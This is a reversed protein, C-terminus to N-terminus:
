RRKLDVLLADIFELEHKILHMSHTFLERINIPL